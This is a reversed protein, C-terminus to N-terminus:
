RGRPFHFRGLEINSKSISLESSKSNWYPTGFIEASIKRDWHKIKLYQTRFIRKKMGHRLSKPNGSSHVTAGKKQALWRWSFQFILGKERPSGAAMPPSCVQGSSHLPAAPLSPGVKDKKTRRWQRRIPLAWPRRCMAKWRVWRYHSPLQHRFHNTKQDAEQGGVFGLWLSVPWLGSKSMSAVTQGWRIYIQIGLWCPCFNYMASGLFLVVYIVYVLCIYISGFPKCCIEFMSAWICQWPELGTVGRPKRHLLLVPNGASGDSDLLECWHARHSPTFPWVQDPCGHTGLQQVHVPVLTHLAPEVNHLVTQAFGLWQTAHASNLPKPSGLLQGGRHKWNGQSIM